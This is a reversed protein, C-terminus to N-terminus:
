RGQSSEISKDIIEGIQRELAVSDPHLTKTYLWNRRPGISFVGTRLKLGPVVRYDKENRIRELNESTLLWQRGSVKGQRSDRLICELGNHTARLTTRQQKTEFVILEDKFKGTSREIVSPEETERESESKQVSSGFFTKWGVWTGVAVLVTQIVDTVVPIIELALRFPEQM